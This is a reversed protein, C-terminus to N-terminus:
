SLQSPPLWVSEYTLLGEGKFMREFRSTYIQSPIGETPQFSQWGAADLAELVEVNYPEWDTKFWFPSGPKLKRALIALFEPKLLRNKHYR